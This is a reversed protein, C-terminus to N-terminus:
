HSVDEGGRENKKKICRQQSGRRIERRSLHQQEWQKRSKRLVRRRQEAGRQTRAWITQQHHNLDEFDCTEKKSGATTLNLAGASGSYDAAQSSSTV